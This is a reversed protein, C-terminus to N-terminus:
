FSNIETMDFCVVAVDQSTDTVINVPVFTSPIRHYEDDKFFMSIKNDYETMAEVRMEDSLLSTTSIVQKLSLKRCLTLNLQSLIGASCFEQLVVQGGDNNIVRLDYKEFLLKPLSQLDIKDNENNPSAIILMSDIRHQLGFLHCRERIAKAGNVSTIIYTEIETGDPHLDHFIRGRLFDNSGEFHKGSWTIVIQAPYKRNSILGQLQLEQRYERLKEFLNPDESKIHPWECPGYPQWIYGKKFSDIIDDCGEESVLRSGVIVADSMTYQLALRFADLYNGNANLWGGDCGRLNYVWNPVGFMSGDNFNGTWSTESPRLVFMGIICAQKTIRPDRVLPFKCDSNILSQLSSSLSLSAAIKQSNEFVCKHHFLGRSM